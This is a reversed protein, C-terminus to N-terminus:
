APTRRSDVRARRLWRAPPTGVLQKFAGTMHSQHAFGTAVAAQYLPVGRLALRQVEAIRLEQVLQKPTKGFAVRFRRHFHFPSLGTVGAIERMDPNRRYERQIFALAKALVPDVEVTDPVPARANPERM